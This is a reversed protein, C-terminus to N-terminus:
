QDPVGLGAISDIEAILKPQLLVTKFAAQGTGVQCLM